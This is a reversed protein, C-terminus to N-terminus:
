LLYSSLSLDTSHGPSRLRWKRSRPYASVGLGLIGFIATLVSYRKLRPQCKLAHSKELAVVSDHLHRDDQLRRAAQQGAQHNLIRVLNYLFKTVLM